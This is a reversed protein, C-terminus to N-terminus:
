RRAMPTGLKEIEDYCNSAWEGAQYAFSGAAAIDETTPKLAAFVMHIWSTRSFQAVKTCAHSEGFERSVAGATAEWAKSHAAQKDLATLAIPNQVRLRGIDDFLARKRKYSPDAAAANGVVLLVAALGLFIRQVCSM